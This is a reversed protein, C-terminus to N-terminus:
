GKIIRPTIFILLESNIDSLANNRFLWGLLPIQSLAPTSNRSTTVSSTYIGGIVTTQGDSVLVSTTASQTDIAPVGNVALSQDVTDNALVIQMIVTNSATIHPMVNLKLTADKFIVTTTNNSTIQVPFSVGQKVEAAVNNLTSVRPTSLIRGNGTSELASLAIDLNFAGNVSGLTVGVASNIASAPLNVATGNPV